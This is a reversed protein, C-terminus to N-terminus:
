ITLLLLPTMTTTLAMMYWNLEENMSKEQLVSNSVMHSYFHEFEIFSADM